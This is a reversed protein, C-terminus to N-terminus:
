VAHKKNYDAVSEKLLGDTREFSQKSHEIGFSSNTLGYAEADEDSVPLPIIDYNYNGDERAYRHVWTPVYGLGTIITRGDSYKRINLEVMLGNETYERADYSKLTLRNQNSVFNGLSYFCVTENEGSDSKIVDMKQVVHPHGGIICDVGLNALFKATKIQYDNPEMEYEVGWHMYAIIIDVGADNLYKVDRRVREYLYEEERQNVYINLYDWDSAPIPIENVSYLDDGKKETVSDAYNFMGIKIGNVDIILTKEKSLDDTIGLYSFGYERFHSLTRKIGILEKDYCHNNAYLLTDFGADKIAKLSSVPSNFGPYGSYNEDYLTTEFNVVALDAKRVIPAVYRYTSSFDYNGTEPDYAGRVQPMHFMIDGANIVTIDTYDLPQETPIETPESTIEPTGTDNPAMPTETPIYATIVETPYATATNNENRATFAKILFVILIIVIAVILLFTIRNFWIRRKYNKSKSNM